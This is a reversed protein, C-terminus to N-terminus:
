PQRKDSPTLKDIPEFKFSVGTGCVIGSHGIFNKFHRYFTIIILIKLFCFHSKGTKETGLISKHGM